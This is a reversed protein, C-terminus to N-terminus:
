YEKNLTFKPNFRNTDLYGDWKGDLIDIIYQIISGVSTFVFAIGALVGITRVFAYTSSKAFMCYLRNDIKKLLKQGYKILKEGFSVLKSTSKSVSSWIKAIAFLAPIIWIILDIAIGVWKINIKINGTLDVNNVPNNECYSYLNYSLATGTVGLYQLDDSCQWRGITADYYRSNCYYLGVEQDYYYGRYRFPNIDKIANTGEISVINGYADYTYAAVKEYNANYIGIIDGMFTTQYFYNHCGNSLSNYESLGILKGSENYYYYLQYYSTVEDEEFYRIREGQIRNDLIIYDHWEKRELTLYDYIYKAYRIGSENYRYEIYLNDVYDYQEVLTRAMYTYSKILTQNQYVQILNGLEDYVYQFQDFIMGNESAKITKAILQDKYTSHYTYSVYPELNQYELYCIPRSISTINGSSNYTYYCDYIINEDTIVTDQSLLFYVRHHILEDLGNYEFIEMVVNTTSDANYIEKRMMTILGNEYAYDIRENKYTVSAVQGNANLNTIQTFLINEQIIKEITTDQDDESSKNSYSFDNFYEIIDGADDKAVSKYYAQQYWEVLTSQKENDQNYEFYIQAGQNTVIKVLRNMIDYEYNYSYGRPSNKVELLNGSLDYKLSFQSILNTGNHYQITIPLNFENYTYTITYGNAYTYKTINDTEVGFEYLYQYSVMVDGNISISSIHGFDTYALSFTASSTFIDTIRDLTDYAYRITSLNTSTGQMEKMVSILREFIDYQYSTTVNNTTSSSVQGSVTDYLYTTNGYIPSLEQIIYQYDYGYQGANDYVKHKPKYNRLGDELGDAQEIREALADLDTVKQRDEASLLEYAISADYVLYRNELTIEDIEPLGETIQITDIAESTQETQEQKMLSINDICFAEHGYVYAEVTISTYDYPAEIELFVSDITFKDERLEQLTKSDISFGSATGDAEQFVIRFQIYGNKLFEDYYIPAYWSQFIYKDGKTGTAAITQSANEVSTVVACSNGFASQYSPELIFPSSTNRYVYLWNDIREYSSTQEFSGNEILNYGVNKGTQNLNIYEFYAYGIDDHHLSIIVETEEIIEFELAYPRYISSKTVPSQRSIVNLKSAHTSNATEVTLYAGQNTGNCQILASLYYKGQPLVVKQHYALEKTLSTRNIGIKNGLLIFNSKFKSISGNQNTTAYWIDNSQFTPDKLYNTYHPNGMKVDVLNHQNTPTNEFQYYMTNLHSDEMKIINGYMDFWYRQVYGTADKTMTKNTQYLYSKQDTFSTVGPMYSQYSLVQMQQLFTDANEAYIFQKGLEYANLKGYYINSILQHTNYNIHISADKEYDASGQYRVKVEILNQQQDYIYNLSYALTTPNPKLQQPTDYDRMNFEIKNLLGNQEDYIFNAQNYANDVVKNICVVGNTTTYDITIANDIYLSELIKTLYLVPQQSFVSEFIRIDEGYLIYSNAVNPHVVLKYEDSNPSIYTYANVYEPQNTAPKIFTIQSGDGRTYIYCNDVWELTEHYSISFGRGYPKTANANSVNISRYHHSINWTLNDNMFHSDNFGYTLEGTALNIKADGARGLHIDEFSVGVDKNVVGTIRIIPVAQSSYTSLYVYGASNPSFYLLAKNENNLFLKNYPISVEKTSYFAEQVYSKTFATYNTGDMSDYANSTNFRYISYTGIGDFGHNTLVIDAHSFDVSGTPKSLEVISFVGGPEWDPKGVLINNSYPDTAPYEKFYAKARYTLAYDDCITEVIPDIVVPYTALELWEHNPIVQFFYTSECIPKVEVLIDYSIQNASDYMFFPDITYITDGEDNIFAFQNVGNQEMKLGDTYLYFGFYFDKQYAQLTINEKFVNGSHYYALDVDDYHLFVDKYQIMDGEKVARASKAQDFSWSLHYGQYNIKITSTNDWQKPYYVESNQNTSIYQQTNETIENEFELYENGNFYHIDKDYYVYELTNDPQLYVKLNRKRLYPLEIKEVNTKENEQQIYTPGKTMNISAALSFGAYPPIIFGLVLLVVVIKTFISLKRKKM